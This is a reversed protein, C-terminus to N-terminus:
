YFGDFAVEDPDVKIGKASIQMPRIHEDFDTGRMKDIQLARLREGSRISTRIRIVGRALFSEMPVEDGIAECIMISTTEADKLVRMLSLIRRRSDLDNGELLRITTTSDLVVRRHKEQRLEMALEEEMFDLNKLDEERRSEPSLDLIRIKRTDWGFPVMNQRLEDFPEELTVYLVPEGKMLGDWLFQMGLITKGSGPGGILLYPRRPILGGKLMTDLGGIGTSVREQQM